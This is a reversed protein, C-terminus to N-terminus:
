ASTVMCLVSVLTDAAMKRIAKAFGGISLGSLGPIVIVVVGPAELPFIGAGRRMRTEPRLGALDRGAAAGDASAM